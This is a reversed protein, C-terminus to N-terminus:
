YNLFFLNRILRGFLDVFFLMKLYLIIIIDFFEMLKVGFEMISVDIVNNFM